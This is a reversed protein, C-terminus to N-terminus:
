AFVGVNTSSASTDTNSPHRTGQIAIQINGNNGPIAGTMPIVYSYDTGNDTQQIAGATAGTPTLSTIDYNADFRLEWTAVGTTTSTNFVQIQANMQDTSFFGNNQFSTVEYDTYAQASSGDGLSVGTVVTCPSDIGLSWPTDVYGDATGGNDGTTIQISFGNATVSGQVVSIDPMDRNASQEETTLSPHYNVGDPHATALVVDWRGLATRTITANRNGSQTQGDESRAFYEEVYVDKTSVSLSPNSVIVASQLPIKIPNCKSEPQTASTDEPAIDAFAGGAGDDVQLRVGAFFSIDSYEFALLHWGCNLTAFIGTNPPSLTDTLGEYIVQPAGYVPSHWVRVREGTNTNVDQVRTNDQNIYVWGWYRAQTASPNDSHEADNDNWDAVVNSIDPAGSVHSPLGNRPDPAGNFIASPNDHAVSSAGWIDENVGQTRVVACCKGM